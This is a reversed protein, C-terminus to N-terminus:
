FIGAIANDLMLGFFSLTAVALVTELVAIPASAAPRWSHGSRLPMAAPMAHQWSADPAPTRRLTDRYTIYAM